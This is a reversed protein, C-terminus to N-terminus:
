ATTPSIAGPAIHAAVRDSRIRARIQNYRLKCVILFAIEIGGYIAVWKEGGSGFGYSHLGTAMVYNVGYFTWVILLFGIIAAAAMGVDRLWGVYRAHLMTFYGVISILAWTEKPDWGWFRGWSDAAWVGGLITGATLLLVGIQICRYTQVVLSERAAPRPKSPRALLVEKILYAHGLVAAVALLGYSAITTVVHLTLWYNSRLVAPPMNMQQALPVLNAFLVSAGGAFLGCALYWGSRNFWQSVGGAIVAVLGMWLLAEYTNTIPVHELIIGRLVLGTIHEAIGIAAVVLAAIILPRRLFIRSFGLLILAGIYATAAQQWPKHNNLFLEMRVHSAHREEVAGAGDIAARLSDVGSAIDGGTRYTEALSVLAARVPETGPDGDLLGVMRFETGKAPPVMALQERRMILMGVREVAGRLDLARRQDPTPQVDPNSERARAFERLLDQVGENNAVEAASFFRQKQDLGLRKRMPVNEIAILPKHWMAEGTFMLDCLLEVRHRGSFADPGKGPSWKSRGTLQV